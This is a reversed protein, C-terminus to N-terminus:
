KSRKFHPVVSDYLLGCMGCVKVEAPGDKCGTGDQPQRDIGCNKEDDDRRLLRIRGHEGFTNGWSNQVLWYKTTSILHEQGYGILTIAHNIISDKQCGDFIGGVYQSWGTADASIAVPGHEYVARILPMYQNEPLKEWGHMGITLGPSKSWSRHLGSSEFNGEDTTDGILGAPKPSAALQKMCSADKATYPIQTETSLGSSLTYNMALEVTAGKCGGTGGCQRPNAVCAVLEEASYSRQPSEYIEASAALITAAAVAWCSGCAGQDPVNQLSALHAWSFDEPLKIQNLFTARGRIRSLSGHGLTSSATGFWGMKGQKEEESLDALPSAGATWLRSPRMNLKEAESMHNSFIRLRRKYEASGRKYNRENMKVFADFEHIRRTSIEALEASHAEFCDVSLTCFFASVSFALVSSTAPM